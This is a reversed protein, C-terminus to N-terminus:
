DSPKNLAYTFMHPIGSFHVPNFDVGAAYYLQVKPLLNDAETPDEPVHADVDIRFGDYTKGIDFTYAPKSWYEYFRGVNYQPIVASLGMQTKGNTVTMGAAGNMVNGGVTLYSLGYPDTLDTTEFSSNLQAGTSSIQPSHNIRTISANSIDSINGNTTVNAHVVISGRYGVFAGLVWHIPHMKSYNGPRTELPALVSFIRSTAFEGTKSFGPLPPLRDYFNFMHGAGATPTVNKDYGMYQQFSLTSRHLLCRLSGIREGTTIDEIHDNFNVSSGDIMGSQVVATTVFPLEKPAAFELDACGSLYVEVSVVNDLAPGTLPNVVSLQWGGNAYSTDNTVATASVSKLNASALLWLSPAKFPIEVEFGSEESSLDFVKTFVISEYGSGNMAASPDWQFMLRGKQFKSRVVKFRLKVGGRWFRFPTGVWAPVSLHTTVASATTTTEQAMPSVLGFAIRQDTTATDTWSVVKMLTERQVLDTIVLQDDNNSGCVRNDVTVENKPDIALKDLPMSTEVNAFAFFAKNQIPRVDEMNPANSFGFMAAVRSVMGAGMSIAKAYPGIRGFGSFMGAAKSITSAPGSIMGSQLTAQTSPGAVVVDVAEAYVSINIGTGVVGNASRLPAFVQYYLKGVHDFQNAYGTNLWNGAWVFPLTLEASTAYQPEIDVGDATSVNIISSDGVAAFKGTDLPDYFVRLHGYYFPSATFRFTLKLKCQLRSFNYLKSKLYSNNFYLKWPYMSHPNTNFVETENWTYSDIKVPRSLFDGLHATKDETDFYTADRPVSVIDEQVATETEVFTVNEAQKQTEPMTDLIPMTATEGSQLWAISSSNCHLANLGEDFSNIFNATLIYFCGNDSWYIFATCAIKHILRCKELFLSQPVGLHINTTIAIRFYVFMYIYLLLIVSVRCM